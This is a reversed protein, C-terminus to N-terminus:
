RYGGSDCFQLAQRWRRDSIGWELEAAQHWIEALVVQVSEPIAPSRRGERLHQLDARTIREESPAFEPLGGM